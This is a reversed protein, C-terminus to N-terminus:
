ELNQEASRGVSTNVSMNRSQGITRPRRCMLRRALQKFARRMEVDRFAYVFPNVASNSYQLWKAFNFVRTINQWGLKVFCPQCFEGVLAIIYTPLLEFFFLATIIGLTIATKREKQLKTKQDHSMTTTPLERILRKAVGFISINVLLIVLFPILFGVCFLAVVYFEARKIAWGIFYCGSVVFAMIWIYLLALIYYFRTLTQHYFPRSIAVWRELAIVTLHLASSLATVYDFSVFFLDVGENVTWEQLSIYIWLPVSVSGVLFDCFALSILLIYTGTQLRRNERYAAIVLLNGTLIIIMIVVSFGVRVCDEVGHSPLTFDTTRNTSNLALYTKTAGM